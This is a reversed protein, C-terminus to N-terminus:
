FLTSQTENIIRHKALKCYDKDIELGISYRKNKYASIITTGAGVFPDFIVDDEYSFLKILRNPLELPFSAPHGTNKPNEGTMTWLGNTYTIFEKKTITSIKSGITKKWSDKYFILIVEVPAIVAPASASMWSGWAARHPISNKNWIITSRYKWGAQRAIYILDASMAEHGNKNNDMPINLCLRGESKTWKFVNGIKNLSITLSLHFHIKNSIIILLSKIM